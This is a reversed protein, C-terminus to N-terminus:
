QATSNGNDFIGDLCVFYCLDHDHEDETNINKDIKYVTVIAYDGASVATTEHNANIHIPLSSGSMLVDLTMDNSDTNEICLKIMGWEDNVIGDLDIANGDYQVFTPIVGNIDSPIHKHSSPAYVNDHNHDLPAKGGLAAYVGGSTVLNTSNDTPTSDPDALARILNNINADRIIASKYDGNGKKVTIHVEGGNEESTTAYVRGLGDSDQYAITDHDHYLLAFDAAKKGSDQINGESDLSAFNGSDSSHVRTVLDEITKGSDKLDGDETFAVIKNEHGQGIKHCYKSASSDEKLNFIDNNKNIFGIIEKAM